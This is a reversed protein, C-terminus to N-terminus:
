YRWHLSFLTRVQAIFNILDQFDTSLEEPKLEFIARSSEFHRLQQLFEEKYSLPDRKILNQLQPINTPLLAARNRKGMTHLHSLHLPHSYILHM